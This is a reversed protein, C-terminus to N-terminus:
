GHDGEAVFSFPPLPGTLRMNIQCPADDLTKLDQVLGPLAQRDLLLAWDALCSQGRPALQKVEAARQVLLQSIRAIQAKQRAQTETRRDRVARRRTLFDRGGTAPSAGPAPAAGSAELRLGYEVRGAFRAFMADLWGAQQLLHRTLGAEDAFGAGLAIPLVDTQTTYCALIQAQRTALDLAEAEDDTDVGELPVALAHWAGARIDRHSLPCTVKPLPARAVGILLLGSM